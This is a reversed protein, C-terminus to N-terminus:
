TSYYFEPQTIKIEHCLNTELYQTLNLLMDDVSFGMDRIPHIARSPELGVRVLANTHATFPLHTSTAMTTTTRVSYLIM